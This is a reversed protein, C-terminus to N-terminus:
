IFINSYPAINYLHTLMKHPLFHKYTPNKTIGFLHLPFRHSQPTEAAALKLMALVITVLTCGVRRGM